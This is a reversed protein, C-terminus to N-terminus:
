EVWPETDSEEAVPIAPPEDTVFVAEIPGYGQPVDDLFWERWRGYPVVKYGNGPEGPIVLRLTHNKPDDYWFNIVKRIATMGNGDLFDSRLRILQQMTSGSFVPEPPYYTVGCEPLNVEGVKVNNVFLIFKSTLSPFLLQNENLIQAM